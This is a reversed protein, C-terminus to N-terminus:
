FVKNVAIVNGLLVYYFYLTWGSTNAAPATPPLQVGAWSVTYSGAQLAIIGGQSIKPNSFSITVNGTLPGSAQFNIGNSMNLSVSGSTAFSAPYVSLWGQDTSILYDPTNNLIQQYSAVPIM